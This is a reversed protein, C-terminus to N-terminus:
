VEVYDLEEHFTERVSYLGIFALILAVAMVALGSMTVGLAPIM